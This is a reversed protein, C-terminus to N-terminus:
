KKDVMIKEMKEIDTIEEEYWKNVHRQLKHLMTNHVSLLNLKQKRKNYLSNINKDIKTKINKAIEELM